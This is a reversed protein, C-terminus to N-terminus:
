FSFFLNSQGFWCFFGAASNNNWLLFSSLRCGGLIPYKLINKNIGNICYKLFIHMTLLFFPPARRRTSSQVKKQIANKLKTKSIKKPIGIAWFFLLIVSFEWFQLFFEPWNKLFLKKRTGKKRTYELTKFKHKETSVQLNLVM